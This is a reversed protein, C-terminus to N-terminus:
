MQNIETVSKVYGRITSIIFLRVNFDLVGREYKAHLTENTDKDDNKTLFFLILM